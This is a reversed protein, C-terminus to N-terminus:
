DAPNKPTLAQLDRKCGALLDSCTRRVRAADREQRSLADALVREVDDRAQREEDCTRELAARVSVVRQAKSRVAAAAQQLAAHQAGIAAVASRLAAEEASQQRAKRQEAALRGEVDAVLCDREETLRRWGAARSDRLKRELASGHRRRKKPPTPGGEGADGTAM